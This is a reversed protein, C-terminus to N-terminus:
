LIMGLIPIDKFPSNPSLILGSGDYLGGQRKLYLGNGLTKFGRGNAHSLYLGKGDTEIQCVCGGKKIYLGNGTLKQAGTSVLWSLAGVGLAPLLTGTLFPIAKAALGALLPLFGVDLKM